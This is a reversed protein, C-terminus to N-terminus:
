AYFRQMEKVDMDRYEPWNRNSKSWLSALHANAGEVM